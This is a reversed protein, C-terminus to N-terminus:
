LKTQKKSIAQPEQTAKLQTYIIIGSVIGETRVLIQAKM